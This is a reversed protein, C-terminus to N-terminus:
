QNQSNFDCTAANLLMGRESFCNNKSFGSDFYYIRRDGSISICCPYQLINCEGSSFNVSVSTENGYARQNMNCLNQPMEQCYSVQGLSLVCSGISGGCTAYSTFFNTHCDAKTPVSVSGVLDCRNFLNGEVVGLFCYPYLTENCGGSSFNGGKDKSSCKAQSVNEACVDSLGLEAITGTCSGLINGDGGNGDGSCSFTFVLALMISAVQAFKTSKM